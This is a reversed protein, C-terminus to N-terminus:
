PGLSAHLSVFRLVAYALTWQELVGHSGLWQSIRRLPHLKDMLQAERGDEEEKVRTRRGEERKRGDKLALLSTLALAMEM